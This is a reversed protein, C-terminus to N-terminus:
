RVVAGRLVTGEVGLAIRELGLAVIALGVIDDIGRVKLGIPVSVMAVGFAVNEICLQPEREAIVRLQRQHRIRYLRGEHLVRESERARLELVIRALGSGARNQEIG